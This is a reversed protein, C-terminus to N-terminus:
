RSTRVSRSVFVPSGVVLAFVACNPDLSVVFKHSTASTYRLAMRRHEATKPLTTAEEESPVARLPDTARAAQGLVVVLLRALDTPPTYSAGGGWGVWMVWPTAPHHDPATACLFSPSLSISHHFLCLSLSLIWCFLLKKKSAAAAADLLLLLSLYISHISRFPAASALSAASM